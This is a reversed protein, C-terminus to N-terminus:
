PFLVGGRREIARLEAKAAAELEALAADLGVSAAQAMGQWWAEVEAERKRKLARAIAPQARAVSRALQPSAHTLPISPACPPAAGRVLKSVGEKRHVPPKALMGAPRREVIRGLEPDYVGTCVGGEQHPVGPQLSLAARLLLLSGYLSDFPCDRTDAELMRALEPLGGALFLITSAYGTGRGTESAGGQGLAHRLGPSADDKTNCIVYVGARWVGQKRQDQYPALVTRWPAAGAVGLNRGKMGPQSITIRSGPIPYRGPGRRPKFTSVEQVAQEFLIAQLVALPVWLGWLRHWVWEKSELPLYLM